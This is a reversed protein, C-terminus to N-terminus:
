KERHLVSETLSYLIDRAEGEQFVGLASRAEECYVRALERSKEIGGSKRVLGLVSDVDGGDVSKWIQPYVEAAYLVPATIIGARLDNGVPKGIQDLTGTFDLIDDVIQFAMGLGKGYAYAAESVNKESGALYTTACCSKAILSATKLYTKELYYGMERKEPRLQM